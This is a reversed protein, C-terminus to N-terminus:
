EMRKVKVKAPVYFIPILAAKQPCCEFVLIVLVDFIVHVNDNFDLVVLVDFNVHVNDNFDLVVLVDFNVLVNDNFDVVVLVGFNVLVNDNFHNTLDLNWQRQCDLNM